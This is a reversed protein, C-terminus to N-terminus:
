LTSNYSANILSFIVDLDSDPTIKIMGKYGWENTTIDKIMGTTDEPYSQDRLLLMIWKPRFEFRAFSKTTRYTIGSKQGDKEVVSPLELIRERLKQAVVQMEPSTTNLHTALDYKAELHLVEEEEELTAKKERIKKPYPNYEDEIHLINGEYLSYTKLEVSDVRRVASKIYRSFGQAVLVVRPQEWNVEVKDGLKSHVLLNFHRKNQLLWDLYFLGQSFVEENERWKYEIIVPSNNEDLGITDIRGETIQYEKELFRVGLIEELNDAFFDRLEFENGFGERKLLLQQVKKNEIKYVAM